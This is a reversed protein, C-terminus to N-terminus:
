ALQDNLCSRAQPQDHEHGNRQQVARSSRLRPSTRAATSQRLRSSRWRCYRGDHVLVHFRLGAHRRNLRGRRRQRRLSTLTYTTSNALAASPTLTATQSGADYSVTAAVQNSAADRLVLTTYGITSVNMANNFHVTVTTTQPSTRAEAPRLSPFSPFRRSRRSRRPSTRPWRAAPRIPWAAAAAPSRSRTRRRTRWPPPEAHTNRTQSGADYSVTAAVQNGPADKLVLTM